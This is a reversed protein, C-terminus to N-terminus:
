STTSLFNLFFKTTISLIRLYMIKILVVRRLLQPIKQKLENIIIEEKENVISMNVKATDFFLVNRLVDIIHSRTEDYNGIDERGILKNWRRVGTKLDETM